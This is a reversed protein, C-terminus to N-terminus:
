EKLAREIIDVCEVVNKQIDSEWFRLLTWAGNDVKNIYANKSKDRGKGKIQHPHLFSDEPYKKPNAHWFDGDVEIILKHKPFCFDCMFKDMFKFQHIFDEVEKYGRKLLEKKIEREPKTNEKTPFKGSEFMRLTHQRNREVIKERIEPNSLIKMWTERQKKLTKESPHKGKMPSILKGESYLRKKTESMKRRSEESPSKGKNWAVQLDKKGKNWGIQGKHAESQKKRLEPNSWAKKQAESMKKRHKQKSWLRNQAESMRKKVEPNSLGKKIKEKQEQTHKYSGDKMRTEVMKRISEKSPKYGKPM